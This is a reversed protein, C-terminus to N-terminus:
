KKMSEPLIAKLPFQYQYPVRINLLTGFLGINIKMDMVVITQGLNALNRIIRKNNRKLANLIDSPNLNGPIILEGSGKAPVPQAILTTLTTVVTNEIKVVTEISNITYKISSPNNIKYVIQYSVNQMSASVVKFRVFEYSYQMAKKLQATLYVGAAVLSVAAIGGFLLWQNKTLKM